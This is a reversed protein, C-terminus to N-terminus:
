VSKELEECLFQRFRIDPPGIMRHRQVRLRKPGYIVYETAMGDPRETVVVIHTVGEQIQEVDGGVGHLSGIEVVKAQVTAFISYTEDIGGTVNNTVDTRTALNVLEGCRDFLRDAITV